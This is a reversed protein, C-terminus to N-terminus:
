AGGVPEAEARSLEGAVRRKREDLERLAVADPVPRRLEERLSQALRRWRNRLRWIRIDRTM